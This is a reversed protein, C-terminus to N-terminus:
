VAKHAQDTLVELLRQAASCVKNFHPPIVGYAQIVFVPVPLLDATIEGLVFLLLKLTAPITIVECAGAVM